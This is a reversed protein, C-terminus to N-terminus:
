TALIRHTWFFIGALLCTFVAMLVSVSSSSLAQFETSKNQNKMDEGEITIVNDCKYKFVNKELWVEDLYHNGDININHASKSNTFM